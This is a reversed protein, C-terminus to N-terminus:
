LWLNWDISRANIGSETGASGACIAKIIPYLNHSSFSSWLFFFQICLAYQKLISKAYFSGRVTRACLRSLHQADQGVSGAM